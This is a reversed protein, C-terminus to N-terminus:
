SEKYIWGILTHNLRNALKGINYIEYLILSPIVAIICKFKVSKPLKKFLNWASDNMPLSRWITAKQGGFNVM